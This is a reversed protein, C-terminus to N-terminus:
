GEPLPRTEVTASSLTVAVIAALILGAGVWASPSLTEGNLLYAFLGAFAPESALILATREPPTKKQAYTQVFFALASAFLSTVILAGWVNSERPVQLEGNLAAVVLTSLGCLGLQIALLPGIAYTKIARDTSLFHLSFACACFFVLVDGSRVQGQLGSLLFLGVLSVMAAIWAITGARQRLLVAGFLPTLIVFMGTIFGAHSATTRQLGMTQFIYGATLFVGMGVGARWGARDLTALGRRFVVGVLVAAPIFRYALFAM